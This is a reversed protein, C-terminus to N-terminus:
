DQQVPIYRSTKLVLGIEFVLIAIASGGYSIFPLTVGTNPLMNTTVGINLIIQIAFQSFIGTSVLAGFTNVSNRAVFVIRHLLLVFLLILVFAGFLGLEECVIAFIMDNQVEPLKAKMISSGLGKGFLGGSGIAYLANLTQMSEDNSFTEPQRWAIIRGLRFNGLDDLDMNSVDISDVYVVIIVAVILVLAVISLFVKWDPHVVFYMATAIFLIILASSLNRTLILVMFFVIITPVFVVIAVKLKNMKDKSMMLVSATFLIVALKAVEAPQISIPGFYVWRTAGHSTHGLPTKVLVILILTILYLYPSVRNWFSFPVWKMAVFTGIAAFVIIGAQKVFNDGAGEASVIGASYIMILGFICLFMTIFLLNYDFYRVPKVINEKVKKEKVKKGIAEAMVMRRCRRYAYFFYGPSM